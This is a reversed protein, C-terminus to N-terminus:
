GFQADFVKGEQPLLGARRKLEDPCDPQKLMWRETDTLKVPSARAPPQLPTDAARKREGEIVGLVYSAKHARKEQARSIAHELEHPAVPHLAQYRAHESASLQIALGANALKEAFEALGQHSPEPDPPRPPREPTPEPAPSVVLDTSHRPRAPPSRLSSKGEVERRKGEVERGKGEPPCRGDINRVGETLTGSSTRVGETLTGSKPPSPFSSEPEKDKRLGTQQREFGPFSLYMDGDVEYWDVLGLSSAKTLTTRISDADVCAIRPFVAGKIVDPDGHCRGECDLHAILWTWVLGGVAGCENVLEAVKKNCSVSRNLM